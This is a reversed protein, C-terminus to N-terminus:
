LGDSKEKKAKKALKEKAKRTKNNEKSKDSVLKSFDEGKIPTNAPVKVTVAQQHRIVQRSLLDKLQKLGEEYEHLYEIYEDVGEIVDLARSPGYQLDEQLKGTLIRSSEADFNHVLMSLYSRLLYFESTSRINLTIDAYEHPGYKKIKASQKRKKTAKTAM